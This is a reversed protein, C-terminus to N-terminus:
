SHSRIVGSIRWGFRIRRISPSGIANAPRQDMQRSGVWGSASATRVNEIMVVDALAVSSGM